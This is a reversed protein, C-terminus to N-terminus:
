SSASPRWIMTNAWPRKTFRPHAMPWGDKTILLEKELWTSACIARHVSLNSIPTYMSGFFTLSEQFSLYNQTGRLYRLKVMKQKLKIFLDGGKMQFVQASLKALQSRLLCLVQTKFGFTGVLWFVITVLVTSKLRTIQEKGKKTGTLSEEWPMRVVNCIPHKLGAIKRDQNFRIQKWPSKLISKLLFRFGVHSNTKAQPYNQM